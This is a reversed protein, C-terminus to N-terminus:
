YEYAKLNALQLEYASNAMDTDFRGTKMTGELWVPEYIDPIKAPPNATVFVIQNPPPPPSHLCAGFYPVLLFEAHEADVSFDLPVIYGPLRIAQGDLSEVVNFTGIQTMTDLESGEGIQSLDLEEDESLTGSLTNQEAMLRAEFEAYFEEYLEALRAEEGQPMLDEWRLETFEAAEAADTQAAPSPKAEATSAENGGSCASM